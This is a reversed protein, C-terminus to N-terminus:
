SLLNFFSDTVLGWRTGSDIFNFHFYGALPDSVTCKMCIDVESNIPM